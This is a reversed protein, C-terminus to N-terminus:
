TGNFGALNGGSVTVDYVGASVLSVNSAAGTTGGTVVFDAIDVNSVTENFTARFVLSDANTPSTAPTQLAVTTLTPATTDITIDWAHDTSEGSTNGAADVVAARFNYTTGNTLAATTIDVFTATINTGTL